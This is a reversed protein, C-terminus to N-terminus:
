QLMISWQSARTGLLFLLLWQFMTMMPGCGFVMFQTTVIDKWLWWNSSAFWWKVMRLCFFMVEGSGSRWFWFFGEMKLVLGRWREGSRECLDSGDWSAASPRGPWAAGPPAFAGRGPALATFRLLSSENQPPFPPSTPHLPSPFGFFIPNQPLTKKKKKWIYNKGYTKLEQHQNPTPLFADEHPQQVKMSNKLLKTIIFALQQWHHPESQYTHTHERVFGQPFGSCLQPNKYAAWPPNAPVQHSKSGLPLFQIVFWLLVQGQFVPAVRSARSFLSM